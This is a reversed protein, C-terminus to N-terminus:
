ETDKNDRHTGFFMDAIAVLAECELAAKQAELVYEPVNKEVLFMAVTDTFTNCNNRLIHYRRPGFEEWISALYDEFVARPIATIGLSHMRLPVGHYTTGPAATMIGNQFYYEMGYVEISTHWLAEVPRKLMSSIMQRIEENGLPYVRLIVEHINKM